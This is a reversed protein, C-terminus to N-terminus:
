QDEGPEQGPRSQRPPAGLERHRDTKARRRVAGVPADGPHPDRHLESETAAHGEQAAGSTVSLDNARRLLADVLCGLRWLDDLSGVLEPTQSPNSPNKFDTWEAPILSKSGDPLILVFQLGAPM